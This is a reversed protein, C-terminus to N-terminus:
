RFSRQFHLQTIRCFLGPQVITIVVRQLDTLVVRMETQRDPFEVDASEGAECALISLM